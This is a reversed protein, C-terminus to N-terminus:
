PRIKIGRYLSKRSFNNESFFLFASTVAGRLTWIYTWTYLNDGGRSRGEIRRRGGKTQRILTKYEIRGTIGKRWMSFIKPHGRTIINVKWSFQQFLPKITWAFNPSDGRGSARTVLPRKRAKQFVSILIIHKVSHILVTLVSFRKYVSYVFLKM